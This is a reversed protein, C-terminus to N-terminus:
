DGPSLRFLLGDVARAGFPDYDRWAVAFEELRARLNPWGVYGKDSISLTPRDYMGYGVERALLQWQVFELLGFDRIELEDARDLFDIFLDPTCPRALSDVLWNVASESAFHGVASGRLAEYIKARYESVLESGSWRFPQLAEKFAGLDHVSLRHGSRRAYFLTYLLAAPTRWGETLGLLARRAMPQVQTHSLLAGYARQHVVSRVSVRKEDAERPRGRDGRMALWKRFRDFDESEGEESELVTRELVADVVACLAIRRTETHTIRETQDLIQEICELNVKAQSMSRSSILGALSRCVFMPLWMVDVGDDRWPRSLDFGGLSPVRHQSRFLIRQVKKEFETSAQLPTGSRSVGLFDQADRDWSEVERLCQGVLWSQNERLAEESAMAELMGRARGYAMDSKRELARKGRSLRWRKRWSKLPGRSVSRQARRVRDRMKAELARYGLTGITLRLYRKRDKGPLVQADSIYRRVQNAILRSRSAGGRSFYERYEDEAMSEVHRTIRMKVGVPGFLSMVSHRLALLVNVLLVTSVVTFCACWGALAFIQVQVSWPGDDWWVPLSVEEPLVTWVIPVAFMLVVVVHFVPQGIVWVIRSREALFTTTNHGLFEDGSNVDKELNRLQNAAFQLLALIAAASGLLGLPQFEAGEEVAPAMVFGWLDWTPHSGILLTLGALVFCLIFAEASGTGRPLIKEFKDLLAATRVGMRATLRRLALVLLWLGFGGIFWQITLNLWQM